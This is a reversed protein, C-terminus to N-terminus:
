SGLLQLVNDRSQNQQAQMAVSSESLISQRVQETVARAYDTDSIQSRSSMANLNQSALNDTASTLGNQQAGFQSRSNLLQDTAQTLGQLAQSATDPNSIDLGSLSLGDTTLNPLNLTSNSDSLAIDLSDNSANLLEQGNFQTGNATENISQLNQQFELNLMDRQSSNLTGNQAQLALENMRLLNDNISQSAADATQLLSIGDNANRVAMDQANVQSTITSVVAQGAADDASQNIRSGSALSENVNNLSSTYATSAVPGFSEIAM